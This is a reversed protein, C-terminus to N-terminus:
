RQKGQNRRSLRRGAQSMNLTFRDTHQPNARLERAASSKAKNVKEMFKEILDPCNLNKEPEWTDDKHSFGKWHILFERSGNKKFHVEMVKDVEYERDNTERENGKAEETKTKKPTRSNAGRGVQKEVKSENSRESRNKELFSKILNPCSLDEENEWTDNDPEYGKWRIKFQRKGQSQKMDEISEVEYEVAEAKENGAVSRKRKKSETGGDESGANNGKKKAHRSKRKSKFKAGEDAASEHESPADDRSEVEDEHTGESDSSEAKGKKSKMSLRRM